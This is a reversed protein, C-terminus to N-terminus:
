TSKEIIQEHHRIVEDIIFRLFKESFEPDLRADSALQRILRMGSKLDTPPIHLLGSDLLVPLFTPKSYERLQAGIQNAVFGTALVYDIDPDNYAQEFVARISDNSWNGDFHTIRVDFEGSTLTLLEEVYEQRRLELRDSPGDGIVGVNIVRQQAHGLVPVLVTLLLIVVLREFFRAASKSPM